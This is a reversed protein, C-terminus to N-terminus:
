WILGLSGRILGGATLQPRHLHFQPRFLTRSHLGIVCPQPNPRMTSRAWLLVSGLWINRMSRVGNGTSRLLGVLLVMLVSERWAVVTSQLVLVTARTLLLHSTAHQQVALLHVRAHTLITPPHCDSSLVSGKSLGQRHSLQLPSAMVGSHALHEVGLIGRLQQRLAARSAKSTTPNATGRVADGHMGLQLEHVVGCVELRDLTHPTDVGSAAAAPGLLFATREEM